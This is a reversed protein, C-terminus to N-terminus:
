AQQAELLGRLGALIQAPTPPCGRIVLDVPLASDIGGTIAYSGKFVGGDIACDGVAVVFKPDAAANFGRLLAAHMNRTVPGTILLVDAQRPSGVFRLGYRQLDYVINTLARIELECGNCSGSDIAFIALSRGLIQQGAAHLKEALERTAAADATAAEPATRHALNALLRSFIV